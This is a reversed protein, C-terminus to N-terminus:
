LLMKKLKMLLRARRKKIGAVSIEANKACEAQTLGDVFIWQILEKEGDSLKEVADILPDSWTNYFAPESEEEIFTALIDDETQVVHTEFQNENKLLDLMAGRISRAAYPAFHGRGEEYRTWAQWLAVRGAQRFQEYNRYINLKRITASIMPEYQVLVNEFETLPRDERGHVIRKIGPHEYRLIIEEYLRISM